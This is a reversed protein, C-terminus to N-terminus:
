LWRPLVPLEDARVVDVPVGDVSLGEGSSRGTLWLVVHGAAGSVVVGGGGIPWQENECAITAAPCEPKASFFAAVEDILVQAFENPVDDGSIGVNMDVAHLWVERARMWPVEAARIERGLASRVLASWDRESMAAADARLDEATQVFERRLRPGDYGAAHEIDLLRQEPSVYMPTEEGTRAWALLRRLAEANRALHGLVHRRNWDPLLTASGLEADPVAAISEVLAATGEDVWSLTVGVEYKLGQRDSTM